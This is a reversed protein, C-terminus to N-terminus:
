HTRAQAEHEHENTVRVPRTGRARAEHEHYEHRTSTSTSTGEARNGQPPGVPRRARRSPMSCRGHAARSRTAARYSGRQRQRPLIGIRELADGAPWTLSEPALGFVSGPALLPRGSLGLSVPADYALSFTQQPTYLIGGALVGGTALVVADAELADAGALEVTCCSETTRVRTARDKLAPISANQLWRDRAHEFRLGAPGDIAVLAEGCPIGVLASLERARPASVGLWPPLLVASFEGGEALAARIREAARALRTPDDHRAALEAHSMAREDTHLVLGVDRAAFRPDSEALGAAIAAADWAVHGVHAVLVAGKVNSLDALSADRGRATRITGDSTAIACPEVVHLELAAAVARASSAMSEPADDPGDLAGSTLSTAGTRGLVVTVDAGAARAAIAASTGAAGGGLIVVRM